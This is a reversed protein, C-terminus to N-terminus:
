RGLKTPELGMRKQKLAELEFLDTGFREKWQGRDLRVGPMGAPSGALFAKGYTGALRAVTNENIQAGIIIDDPKIESSRVERFGEDEEADLIEWRRVLDVARFNPVVTISGAPLSKETGDWPLCGLWAEEDLGWPDKAM